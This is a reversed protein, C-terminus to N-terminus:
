KNFKNLAEAVKARDLRNKLKVIDKACDSVMDLKNGRFSDDMGCILGWIEQKIEEIQAPTKAWTKPINKM